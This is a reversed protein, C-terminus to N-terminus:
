SKTVNKPNRHFLWRIIPNRPGYYKTRGNMTFKGPIGHVEWLHQAKGWCGIVSYRKEDCYPCEWLPKREQTDTQFLNLQKESM